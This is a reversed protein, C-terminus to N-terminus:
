VCRKDSELLGEARTAHGLAETNLAVWSVHASAVILYWFAAYPGRPHLLLNTSKGEEGFQRGERWDRSCRGHITGLKGGTTLPPRLPGEERGGHIPSPPPPIHPRRRATNSPIDRPTFHRVM